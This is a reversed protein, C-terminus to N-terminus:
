HFLLYYVWLKFCHCAALFYCVMM